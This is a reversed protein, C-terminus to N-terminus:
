QHRSAARRGSAAAVGAGVGHCMSGVVDLTKPPGDEKRGQKRARSISVTQKGRETQQIFASWFLFNGEFPCLAGNKPFGGCLGEM